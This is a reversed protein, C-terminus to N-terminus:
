ALIEDMFEEDEKNNVNIKFKDYISISQLELNLLDSTKFKDEINKNFESTKDEGRM